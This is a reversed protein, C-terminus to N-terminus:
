RVKQRKIRLDREDIQLLSIASSESQPLQALCILVLGPVCRM